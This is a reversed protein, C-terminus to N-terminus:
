KTAQMFNIAPKAYMDLIIRYLEKDDKNEMSIKEVRSIVYDIFTQKEGQSYHNSWEKSDQLLDLAIYNCPYLRYRSHIEQDILKCVQEIQANNPLREDVLYLMQNLPTGLAMHVRGKYGKLGRRMNLLDEEPSKKYDPENRKRLIERAKLYDCPDYEYSVTVPVISLRRLRDLLSGEECSLALMKVLSSQTRDDSDKARGERQAIWVSDKRVEITHLIYAALQKSNNLLEKMNVGRKVLFCQCLRALTNLWPYVLLNDGIAVQPMSYDIDALLVNLLAADLIIDRHNSIYTYPQNGELRSRGSLNLSFVGVKISNRVADYAFRRKYERVGKIQLMEEKLKEVKSDPFAVSLMKLFQPSQWLLEVSQVIEEDKYARIDDFINDM